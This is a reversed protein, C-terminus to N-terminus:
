LLEDRDLAQGMAGHVRRADDSDLWWYALVATIWALALLLVLWLWFTERAIYAAGFWGALGPPLILALLPKSRM